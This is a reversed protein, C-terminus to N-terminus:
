DRAHVTFCAALEEADRSWNRSEEAVRVEMRLATLAESCRIAVPCTIVCYPPRPVRVAASIAGSIGPASRHSSVARPRGGGWGPYGTAFPAWWPYLAGLTSLWIKSSALEALGPILPTGPQGTM